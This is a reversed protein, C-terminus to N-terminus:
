AKDEFLISHILPGTYADFKSALVVAQVATQNLAMAAMAFDRGSGMAYFKEVVPIPVLRNELRFVERHQTVIMGSGDDSTLSPKDAKMELWAKVALGAQYMGSWAFLVAHEINAPRTAGELWFIKTADLKMNGYDARRDAALTEGDWAITTM